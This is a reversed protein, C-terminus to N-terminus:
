EGRGSRSGDGARRTSPGDASLLAEVHELEQRALAKVSRPAPDALLRQLLAGAEAPDYLSTGAVDENTHLRALCYRAWYTDESIRIAKQLAEAAAEFKGTAQCCVGIRLYVGGKSSRTPIELVREHLGIAEAYQRNKQLQWAKGEVKASWAEVGVLAALPVLPVVSWLYRVHIERRMLMLAHVCALGYVPIWVAAIRSLAALLSLVVLVGAARRGNVSCGRISSARALVVLVFVLGYLWCEALISRSLSSSEDQSLGNYSEVVFLRVQAHDLILHSFVAAAVLLYPRVSRWRVGIGMALWAALVIAGATVPSNRTMDTQYYHPAVLRVGWEALDVSHAALV